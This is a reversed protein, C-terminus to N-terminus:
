PTGTPPDPAARRSRPLKAVAVAGLASVAAALTFVVLFSGTAARLLGGLQPGFVQCAGFFLTLAGFAAGPARPELHDHLYTNLVVALGTQVLGLLLAYLVPGPEAGVVVLLISVAMVVYGGVLVARRGLRDSMRGLVVGGFPQGVGVLLFVASAHGASFGADRLAAVLYSLYLSLGLGYAGYSLTAGVWGPVLRLASLRVPEAPRPAVAPHLWRLAAATTLVAMGAMVAWVPRWSDDGAVAHVATTVASGIVIGAGIGGAAVGAGLGRHKEPVLAGSLGPAPVWIWAGFFGAVVLGVALVVTGPAVALVVLALTAGVLGRRILASPETRNASLGVYLVGVLYAALNLTGLLGALAYSHLVTANLSPLLLGYSFRGFAQAVGSAASVVVLLVPTSPPAQVTRDPV